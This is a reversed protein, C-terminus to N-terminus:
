GRRSSWAPRSGRPGARARDLDDDERLDELLRGVGPGIVGDHEDGAADVAAVLRRLDQALRDPRPPRPACPRRPRRRRARGPARAAAAPPVAVPLRRALRDGDLRGCGNRHGDGLRMPAAPARRPAAPGSPHRAAGIPARPIRESRPTQDAVLDRAILQETRDFRHLSREGHPWSRQRHLQPDRDGTGRALNPQRVADRPVVAERLGQPARGTDWEVDLQTRADVLWHRLPPRGAGSSVVPPVPARGLAPIGVLRVLRHGRRGTLGCTAGSGAGHRTRPRGPAVDRRHDGGARDARIPPRAARSFARAPPRLAVLPGHRLDPM